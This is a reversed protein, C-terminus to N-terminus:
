TVIRSVQYCVQTEHFGSITPMWGMKWSTSWVSTLYSVWYWETLYHYLQSIFEFELVQTGFSITRFINLEKTSRNGPTCIWSSLLNESAQWHRISPLHSLQIHLHLPRHSRSGEVTSCALGRLPSFLPRQSCHSSHHVQDNFLKFIVLESQCDPISSVCRLQISYM